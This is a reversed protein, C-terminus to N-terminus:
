SNNRRSLTLRSRIQSRSSDNSSESLRGGGSTIAVSITSSKSAANASNAWIGADNFGFGYSPEGVGALKALAAWYSPHPVRKGRRYDSAAAKTVGAAEMIQRLPIDKLRPTITALFDGRDIM